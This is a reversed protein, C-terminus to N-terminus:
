ASKKEVQKSLNDAAIREADQKSGSVGTASNEGLSVCVEFKPQHDLGTRGVTRYVPLGLGNALAWEQLKSKPDKSGDSVQQLQEAWFQYFFNMAAQMGGDLYIAALVAECVDGLISTKERGGNNEEAKSMSLALGLEAAIAAKACSEKRVLSNLKRAMQGENEIEPADFVLQAVILGLVRDGLFELRENDAVPRGDGMSGHTLARRLLEVDSFQYGIHAQVAQEHQSASM